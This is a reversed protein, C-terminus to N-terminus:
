RPCSESEPPYIVLQQRASQGDSTVGIFQSIPQCGQSEVTFQNNSADPLRQGNVWFIYADNGGTAGLEIKAVWINPSYPSPGATVVHWTVTLTQGPAVVTPQVIVAGPTENSATGAQPNASRWLYLVGLLLAVIVVILGTRWGSAAKAPPPTSRPPEAAFVPASPVSPAPEFRQSPEPALEAVKEPSPPSVPRAPRMTTNPYTGTVDYIYSAWFRLNARLQDRDRPAPVDVAEDRVQTVYAQVEHVFAAKDTVENTRDLLRQHIQQLEDFRTM